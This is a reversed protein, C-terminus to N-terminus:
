EWIVAAPLQRPNININTAMTSTWNANICLARATSRAKCAIDRFASEASSISDELMQPNRARGHEDDHSHSHGHGHGHHHHGHHEACRILGQRLSRPGDEYVM